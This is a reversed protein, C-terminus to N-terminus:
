KYDSIQRKQIKWFVFYKKIPSKQSCEEHRFRDVYKIDYNKFVYFLSTKFIKLFGFTWPASTSMHV